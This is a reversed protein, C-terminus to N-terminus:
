TRVAQRFTNVVAIPTSDTVDPTVNVSGAVITIVSSDPYTLQLDWSGTRVTFNTWNTLKLDIINPLTIVTSLTALITGGASNRIEAKASVGTLDAPTLHSTDTWVKFQWAYTDGRYLSMNYSGPRM